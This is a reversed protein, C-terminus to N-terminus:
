SLNQILHGVQSSSEDGKLLNLASSSEILSPVCGAMELDCDERDTMGVCKEARAMCRREKAGRVVRRKRREERALEIVMEGPLSSPLVKM